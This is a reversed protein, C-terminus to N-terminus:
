HNHVKLSEALKRPLFPFLVFCYIKVSTSFKGNKNVLQRQLPSAITPHPMNTLDSLWILMVKRIFALKCSARKPGM